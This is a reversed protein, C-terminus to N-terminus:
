FNTWLGTTLESVKDTSIVSGDRFVTVYDGIAFIDHLRHSIYIITIHQKKLNKIVTFLRKVEQDSLAATPEDMIILNADVGVAKVIEILQKEAYRLNSVRIGLPIDPAIEHLMAFVKDSKDKKRLIGCTTRERGLTLNEEVTLQDVVNLEQFLTSIGMKMAERISHPRYAKGHYFIEGGTREEACTLIKILTSKGAGNEGVICHVTNREIDLTVNKLAQVGPYNKCLARIELINGEKM